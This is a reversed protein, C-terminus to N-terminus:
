QARIAPLTTESLDLAYILVAIAPKRSPYFRGSQIQWVIPRKSFRTVHYRFFDSEIWRDLPKGLISAIEQLAMAAEGSATQQAIGETLRDFLSVGDPVRTLPVIGGECASAAPRKVDIEAPFRHGMLRLILLSVLDAVYVFRRKTCLTDFAVAL